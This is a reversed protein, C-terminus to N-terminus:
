SNKSQMNAWNREAFTTPQGTDIRTQIDKWKEYLEKKM